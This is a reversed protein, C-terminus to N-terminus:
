VHECPEPRNTMAAIAFGGIVWTAGDVMGLSKIAHFVRISAVIEYM